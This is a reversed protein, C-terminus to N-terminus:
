KAQLFKSMSVSLEQIQFPKKLCSNLPNKLADKLKEEAAYGTIFIVNQEPRDERYSQILDIGDMSGPMRVDTIILDFPPSKRLLALAEDANEMTVTEYGLFDLEFALLKRIGPEDDVVLVRTKNAM